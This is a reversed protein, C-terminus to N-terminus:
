LGHLTCQDTAWQAEREGLGYDKKLHFCDVTFSFANKVSKDMIICTIGLEAGDILPWAEIIRGLSSSSGKKGMKSLYFSNSTDDGPEYTVEVKKEFSGLLDQNTSELRGRYVRGFWGEGLLCDARFNKAAATVERFTFTHTAIHTCGVDKLAEKSVGLSSTIKSKYELSSDVGVPMFGKQM